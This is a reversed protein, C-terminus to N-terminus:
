PPRIVPFFVRGPHAKESISPDPDTLRCHSGAFHSDALHCGAFPSGALYGTALQNPTTQPRDRHGTVKHPLPEETPGSLLTQPNRHHRPFGIREM